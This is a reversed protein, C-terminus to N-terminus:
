FKPFRSIFESLLLIQEIRKFLRIALYAVAISILFLGKETDIFFFALSKIQNSEIYIKFAYINRNTCHAATLALESRAAM